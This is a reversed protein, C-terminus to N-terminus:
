LSKIWAEITMKHDSSKFEENVRDMFENTKAVLPTEGEDPHENAELIRYGRVAEIEDDPLVHLRRNIPNGRIAEETDILVKNTVRVVDLAGIAVQRIFTPIDIDDADPSEVVRELLFRSLPDQEMLYRQTDRDVSPKPINDLVGGFKHLFIVNWKVLISLFATHVTGDKEIWDMLSTDIPKHLPNNPDLANPGTPPRLQIKMVYELMRRTTGYDNSSLQLRHNMMMLFTAQIQMKRKDEFKRAVLLIGNLLMKISADVAKAGKAFEDIVCMRAGELMSLQADVNSSTNIRECVSNYDLPTFYPGLASGLLEKLMSKGNSGGGRLILMRDEKRMAWLGTSIYMMIFEFADQETDPFLDRLVLELKQTVPCEPDYSSYRAPTSISVPYTHYSRIFEPTKGLVLVGNSTGIVNGVKDMQEVFKANMCSTLMMTITDNVFKLRGCSVYSKHANRNMLDLFDTDGGKAKTEQTRRRLEDCIEGVMDRLNNQVANVLIHPRETRNYKYIQGSPVHQTDSPMIFEYWVHVRSGAPKGAVLKWKMMETLVKAAISETIVCQQKTSYMDRCMLVCGNKSIARKYGDPDAEEAMRYLGGVTMAPNSKAVCSDWQKEFEIADWHPGLRSYREALFKYDESLSALMHLVKNWMRFGHNEKRTAIINLLRWITAARNDRLMMSNINEEPIEDPVAVDEVKSGFKRAPTDPVEFTTSMSWTLNTNGLDTVKATSLEGEEWTVQYMVALVDPTKNNDRKCSGYLFVPNVASGNDVLSAADCIKEFALANYIPQRIAEILAKKPARTIHFQPLIIHISERMYDGKSRPIGHLVAVRTTTDDPIIVCETLKRAVIKVLKHMMNESVQADVSNHDIDLDIMVGSGDTHRQKEAWHQIIGSERVSNIMRMVQAIMAKPVAYSAGRPIFLNSEGGPSVRHKELKALLENYLANQELQADALVQSPSVDMM